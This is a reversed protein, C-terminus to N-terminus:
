DAAPAKPLKISAAFRALTDPLGRSEFEAAREKKPDPQSAESGTPVANQEGETFEGIQDLKQQAEALKAELGQVQSEHRTRMQQVFEAYCEELPKQSIAWEVGQEAGFREKFDALRAQFEVRPDPTQAAEGSAQDTNEKTMTEREYLVISVPAADSPECFETHTHPDAGVPCVAVARILSQRIVTLPGEYTEGNVAALAGPGYEEVMLGNRPDFKISAEFEVGSQGLKIVEDARDDARTSILEGELRFESGVAKTEGYGIVQNRDHCWDLTLKNKATAMGDVDMVVLGWSPHRFPRGSCAVMQIPARRVGQANRENAAEFECSAAFEFASVPMNRSIQPM